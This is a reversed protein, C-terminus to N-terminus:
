GLKVTLTGVLPGLNESKTGPSWLCRLLQKSSTKGSCLYHRTVLSLSDAVKEELGSGEHNWHGGQSEGRGLLGSAEVDKQPDKWKHGLISTLGLYDPSPHIPHFTDM